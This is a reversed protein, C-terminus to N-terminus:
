KLVRVLERRFSFSVEISEKKSIVKDALFGLADALIRYCTTKGSFPLGVLMLGHRCIIMEYLQQCKEQFWPTIQINRKHGAKEVGANLHEYDPVPLEIGPFLDKTIGLFLPVDQDLFKPLNVDKIARLVMKDEGEDPYRLKLAKAATLVSKVARMGPFFYLQDECTSPLLTQSSKVTIM